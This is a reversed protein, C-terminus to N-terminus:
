LEENIESVTAKADDLLAQYGLARLGINIATPSLNTKSAKKNFWAARKGPKERCADAVLNDLNEFAEDTYPVAANRREKEEKKLDKESKEPAPAGYGAEEQKKKNKKDKSM